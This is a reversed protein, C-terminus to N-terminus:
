VGSTEGGGAGPHSLGVVRVIDILAPIRRTGFQLCRKKECMLGRRKEVEEGGRSCIAGCSLSEPSSSLSSSTMVMSTLPFAISAVDHPIHQLSHIITSM